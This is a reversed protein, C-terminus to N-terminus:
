RINLPSDKFMLSVESLSIVSSANLKEFKIVCWNSKLFDGNILGGISHIDRFFASKFKSEYEGFDTALLESEQKQTGYSTVNTRIEPCAWVSSAIEELSEPTKGELLNINFVMTISCSFQYGFFNCMVNNNHRWLEGGLWTYVIDEASTIWEANKYSFFSGYANRKENFSYAYSEIANGGNTGGQLIKIWDGELYDFAGIIKATAGNSRLNTKNYPTLRNRFYFQGKYLESLNTFGDDSLRIDNGRVPDPFYDSRSASVLATYQDGLGFEGSYYNINGKTLIEDTTVLEPIGENNQIFRAYVGYQGVSRNQFVRLIRDRAKFRQIVGKSRDVEDFNDPYFRNIQNINTNQIYNLGWRLLTTFYNTKEDPNVKQPRGNSNVKSDYLDSFNPDVCGVTFFKQPESYSLNGSILDVRVNGDTSNMVLFAKSNPPMTISTNVNMVITDGRVLPAFSTGLVYLVTTTGFNVYIQVKINSESGKFVTFNLVGKVKFIYTNATVNITWSPSSFSNVHVQEAVYLKTIYDAALYYQKVRKQGLVTGPGIHGSIMDYTITNGITIRRTRFWADGKNFKFTAPTALNVSQNQLQGQHFANVTGPNGIGYEEGFEYYVDLGESASKAPTYLEIYYNTYNLTLGSSFDFAASTTPLVIKIYRGDRVTDNIVPNIVEDYIEYDHTNGYIETPVGVTSYLVYFKIRDGALFSYSVISAPNEIKFVNISEISIYAYKEDKYTGSTIWFLWTQKTLNETRAWQYSYAWLPPRHSISADIYPTYFLLSNVFKLLGLPQTTVNFNANTTAGNTKGKKDFYFLAWNEKSSSNYAPISSNIAPLFYLAGTFTENALTTEVIIDLNGGSIGSSVTTFPNVNLTNGYLIFQVGKTFLSLFSAGGNIRVTNTALTIVFTSAITQSTTAISNRLLVQNARSIVLENATISVQTFGQGTASASLGILVETTTDGVVATYTITFTAAGVSVAASFTQAMRITGLIAFRINEGTQFGETGKQTVWLINNYDINLPYEISTSMSAIPVVPDLGETIGGYVLTNGNLLEQTNALDPVRDFDLISEKVDVFDYAENNFFRYVYADNDPISLNAKNLIVISFFNSFVNGLSEAAALEIKVVSKDGTQFVCGIKCNKTPDTDTEPDTYNFPVPIESYSSWTSKQNDRYWYRYKFKLLKKRLNNVTVTADNEYACKIPILAPEKAVDLYHELWNSGYTNNEAQLINLAKPRKNRTVWTLIDGDIDTTYVINISAAPYDLNFGLIDTTSNTFCLLLTSVAKTKVDYKYIGNRGNSNFNLWILRQKNGDYIAGIAENNGAPLTNAVLTNGVINQATLGSQSGYFRINLSDIHQGSLINEEKDDKNLVGFIKKIEIM